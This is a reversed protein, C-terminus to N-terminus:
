CKVPVSTSAYFPYPLPHSLNEPSPTRSVALDENYGGLGGLLSPIKDNNRLRARNFYEEGSRDLEKVKNASFTGKGFKTDYFDKAMKGISWHYHFDHLMDCTIHLMETKKLIRKNESSLEFKTLDVRVSRTQHMVGKGRRTFVYGQDYMMEIHEDKFDSITVEKWHPYNPM